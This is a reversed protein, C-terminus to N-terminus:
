EPKPLGADAAVADILSNLLRGVEPHDTLVTTIADAAGPHGADKFLGSLESQVLARVIGIRDFGAALGNRILASLHEFNPADGQGVGPTGPPGSGVRPPEIGDVPGPGGPRQLPSTPGVRNPNIPDSM